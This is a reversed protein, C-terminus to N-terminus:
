LVDVVMRSEVRMQTPDPPQVLGARQEVFRVVFCGFFLVVGRRLTQLRAHQPVDALCVFVHFFRNRKLLSPVVASVQNRPLCFWKLAGENSAIGRPPKPSNPIFMIARRQPSSMITISAPRINGSCSNSPTSMTM